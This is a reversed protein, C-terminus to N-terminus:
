SMTSTDESIIEKCGRGRKILIYLVVNHYISIRSAIIEYCCANSKIRKEQTYGRKRLQTELFVYLQILFVKNEHLIKKIRSM